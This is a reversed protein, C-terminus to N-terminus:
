SLRKRPKERRSRVRGTGERKGRRTGARGRATGLFAVAEIELDAGAPLAAVQVVARAPTHGAFAAAYEQNMEGFAKLDTVYVTTKVVHSFGAGAAALVARLNALARAAQARVGGPALRGSVPDLPIQGSVFLWDGALIAQAYPGLPKPAQPTFLTEM